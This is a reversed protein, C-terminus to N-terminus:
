KNLWINEIYGSFSKTLNPDVIKPDQAVLTRGCYLNIVSCYTDVLDKTLQKTLSKCAATDTTSRAQSFVQKMSDPIYVSVRNVGGLYNIYLGQIPDSHGGWTLISGVLMGNNWGKTAMEMMKPATVEQIEAIIGIGKLMDQIAIEMDTSSPVILKTKFGNPYGAENLLQKAKAPDYSTGVIDPNYAWSEDPFPQQTAKYYGQGLSKALMDRNVAYSVAQRVKINSFPSDANKGDPLLATVEGIYDIVNFGAAKLDKIDQVTIALRQIEGAKLALLATTTDAYIRFEIGDPYPLGKQWYDPNREYTLSTDRVYSKLKFPGTGVPKFLIEEKPYKKLATPSVIPGVSSIVLSNMIVWDWQNMNCRVTYPDIVDVSTISRLSTNDGKIATDLNYKVAEANLDTGDHFKIGKRIYFTIYKGNPDIEWKEALRPVYKGSESDLLRELAPKQFTADAPMGMYAPSGINVAKSAVGWYLIGGSKPAATSTKPEKAAQTTTTIDPTSKEGGCGVLSLISIMVTVFLCMLKVKTQM